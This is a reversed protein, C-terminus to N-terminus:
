GSSVWAEGTSQFHQSRNAAGVAYAPLGNILGSTPAISSASVGPGTAIMFESGANSASAPAIALAGNAVMVVMDWPQITFPGGNFRRVNWAPRKNKELSDVADATASELDRLAMEAQGADSMKRRRLKTVM